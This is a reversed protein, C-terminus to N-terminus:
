EAVHAQAQERAGGTAATEAIGEESRGDSLRSEDAARTQVLEHRRPREAPPLGAGRPPEDPARAATSLARTADEAREPARGQAPTRARLAERLETAARARARHARRRAAVSEDQGRAEAIRARDTELATTAATL